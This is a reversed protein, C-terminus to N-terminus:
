NRRYHNSSRRYKAFNRGRSIYILELEKPVKITLKADEVEKKEMRIRYTWQDRLRDVFSTLFVKEQAKKVRHNGEYTAVETEGVKAKISSQIEKETEGEPLDKVRIEYFETISEGPKLSGIEIEQSTKTEDYIYEYKGQVKFYEAELKGYITGEPVSGVIKIGTMEEQSTNTVKINYKIFEGEYLIDGDCLGIDGKVPVVELQLGEISTEEQKAEQYFIDEEEKVEAKEEEYSQLQIELEKSKEETNEEMKHENTYSLKIKAPQNQMEKKLIITTALQINTVLDLENQDYETQEGFLSGRIELNGKENTVTDIEQLELGNEHFIGQQNIIVKEVENPLEITFSPNKWLNDKPKNANLLINFNVENQQENTWELDDVNLEVNSKAEQIELINETTKNKEPNSTTLQSTTKIKINAMDILSSRLEKTYELLLIGEKQIASTRLILTEIDEEFTITIIGNEEFQVEKDITALIDQEENLIEIKGDEGLIENLNNQNLKISKYVLGGENGLDSIIEQEEENKEVKIFTNHELVEISEQIEEQSLEIEEIQQFPTYNNDMKMYGDYIGDTQYRIDLSREEEENEEKEFEFGISPLIHAGLIIVFLLLLMSCTILIIKRM